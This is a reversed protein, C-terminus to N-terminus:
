NAHQNVSNLNEVSSLIGMSLKDTYRHVRLKRNYMSYTYINRCVKNLNYPIYIQFNLIKKCYTRIIPNNETRLSYMYKELWMTSPDYENLVILYVYRNCFFDEKILDLFFNYTCADQQFLAIIVNWWIAYDLWQRRCRFDQLPPGSAHLTRQFNYYGATLCNKPELRIMFWNKKKEIWIKYFLTKQTLYTSTSYAETEYLYM